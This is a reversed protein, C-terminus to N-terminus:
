IPAVFDSTYIQGNPHSFDHPGEILVWAGTAGPARDEELSVSGNGGADTYLPAVVVGPGGAACSYLPARPMLILRAM